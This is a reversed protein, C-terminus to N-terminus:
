IKLKIIRIEDGIGCVLDVSVTNLTTFEMQKHYGNSITLPTGSGIQITSANGNGTVSVEYSHVTNSLISHSNGPTIILEEETNYKPKSDEVAQGIATYDITVDVPLGNEPLCEVKVAVVKHNQSISCNYSIEAYVERIVFEFGLSAMFVKINPLANTPIPTTIPIETIGNFTLNGISGYITSGDTVAIIFDSNNNGSPQGNFAEVDIFFKIDTIISPIPNQGEQINCNPITIPLSWDAQYITNINDGRGNWYWTTGTDGDYSNEINPFESSADNATSFNQTLTKDITCYINIGDNFNHTITFTKTEIPINNYSAPHFQNIIDPNNSVNGINWTSIQNSDTEDFTGGNGSVDNNARNYVYVQEVFTVSSCDQINSYLVAHRHQVTNDQNIKFYGKSQSTLGNTYQVTFYYYFGIETGGLDFTGLPNNYDINTGNFNVQNNDSLDTIDLNWTSINEHASTFDFSVETGSVLSIPGINYDLNKSQTADQCNCGGEIINCFLGTNQASTPRQIQTNTITTINNCTETVNNIQRSIDVLHENTEPCCVDGGSGSGSGFNQNNLEKLRRAIDKLIDLESNGRFGNNGLARGPRTDYKEKM